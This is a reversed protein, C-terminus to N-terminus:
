QDRKNRHKNERTEKQKGREREKRGKERHRTLSTKDRPMIVVVVTM